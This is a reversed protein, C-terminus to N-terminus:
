NSILGAIADYQGQTLVGKSVLDTPAAYPRGAVIAKSRVEGIGPLTKALQAASSTNISALAMGSRAGDLVGKSLVKKSVLEDLSTYPREAIIKKSRAEGIGPLADLQAATASNIDVRGSAPMAAPAPAAKAAPAAAPAPTAPRVAPSMPTGPPPTAPKVVSPVPSTVPPPAMQPTQAMAPVAFTAALLALRLRRAFM